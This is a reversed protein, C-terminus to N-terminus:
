LERRMRAVPINLQERYKAVTRRAILYGKKILIDSLDDDTLPNRKSEAEVCDKVIKRIEHASVEDGSETMLGESFFFKLPFMGFPTQIYKSNGVRSITSKDLGTLDEIDQLIMPKMLLEDGWSEFYDEQHKMIARMTLMM